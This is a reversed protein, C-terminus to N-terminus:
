RAGGNAIKELKVRVIIETPVDVLRVQPDGVNLHTSFIKQGSVGSLDLPDTKVQNIKQVRDQPGRIRVEALSFQADAVRYGPPTNVYVAQIPEQRFALQDFHLTLQSPVAKYFVVGAPLNLNRGRISYTRDGPQADSLDLVAAVASLNDRTLRGSPGRIELRVRDPLTGSIDLDDRPNKYEVPVTLSTAVEPERAVALWLAIAILLSLLKWGLNRTFLQIM